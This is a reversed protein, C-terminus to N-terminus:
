QMQYRGRPERWVRVKIKFQRSILNRRRDGIHTAIVSDTVFPIVGCFFYDLDTSTTPM